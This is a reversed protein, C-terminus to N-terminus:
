KLEWRFSRAAGGIANIQLEISNPMATPAAFQLIGKRHHGGPPDGQWGTPTSRRGADDVLVASQVLNESLPKTHTDMVVEFEWAPVNPALKKPTVVVRVGAADSSRAVLAAAAFSPVPDTLTNVFAFAAIIV